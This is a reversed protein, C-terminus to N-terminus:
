RIIIKCSEYERKGDSVNVIYMGPAMGTTDMSVSSQGALLAIQKVMGGNTSIVSIMRERASSEINININESARAVIPNISIKKKLVQKIETSTKDIAYVATITEGESNYLDFNLFYNDGIRLIGVYDLIEYADEFDIHALENGNSSLIRCGICDNNEKTIPVLYEYESDENFFTQTFYSSKGEYGENFNEYGLTWINSPVSFTKIKTFTDDYVNVEINEVTNNDWADYLKGNMYYAQGNGTTTFRGPICRPYGKQFFPKHFIENNANQCFAGTTLIFTMLITYLKKM